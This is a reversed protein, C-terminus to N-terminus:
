LASFIIGRSLPFHLNKKSKKFKLNVDWGEHHLINQYSLESLEAPEGNWVGGYNFPYLLGRRLTLQSNSERRPHWFIVGCAAKEHNAANKQPSIGGHQSVARNPSNRQAPGPPCFCEIGIYIVHSTQPFCSPIDTNYQSGPYRIVVPGQPLNPIGRGAKTTFTEGPFPACPSRTPVRKGSITKADAFLPSLRTGRGCIPPPCGM